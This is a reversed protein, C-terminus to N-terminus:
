AGGNSHLVTIRALTSARINLGTPALIPGIIEGSSFPSVLLEEIITTGDGARVSLVTPVSASSNSVVIGYVMISRLSEIPINTLGAGAFSSVKAATEKFM